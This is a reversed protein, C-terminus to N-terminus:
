PGQVVGEIVRPADTVAPPAGINPPTYGSLDPLELGDALSVDLGSCNGPDDALTQEMEIAKAVFETGNRGMAVGDAIGFLPYWRDPNGDGDLDVSQSPIGFLEGAGGYGLLYSHGDCAADGNRDNATTHLYTFQLPADFTVFAGLDDVVAAYKNWTNAGTEYTYFVSQNWAQNPDTLGGVSTLMAGSQMGWTFPGSQPAAGPALGAPRLFGAGDTDFYLTLDDKRFVYHYPASVDNSPPEFVQGAEAESTSINPAICNMYGYLDIQSAGGTFLDSAGNVFERAYYTIFTDGDVFSVQGGLSDSWMGLYHLTAVDITVPAKLPDYEHTSENWVAIEQWTSNRYVVRYQAPPGGQGNGFDWWQFTENAIEGLDLTHRSNKILKGPAIVLTYATPNSQGYADRNITDGSALTVNPPAWLGWYGIWGYDGGQTRFGFGSNRTIRAGTASDYLNYRWVRTDFRTRSLCSGPDGDKSRMFHDPDFAIRYEGQIIGSDGQPPYNSREQRRIRAVGRTGDASMSVNGQVLEAHENLPPPVTVDGQQNFFSFGVMGQAADLTRLTGRMVADDITGGEPVGAFNLVFVGFPNEASTGESVVMRVWITVHQPDEGDDNPVWCRVIEDASNNARDSIVTWLQPQKANSGSSQGSDSSGGGNDCAKEDIQALYAGQNVLDAYGTQKLMCLIQNVTKLTEMSPDYVYAHQEDVNYDADAPFDPARPSEATVPAGGASVVSMQGPLSLGSVLGTGSSSGGSCGAALVLLACSSRVSWRAISVV